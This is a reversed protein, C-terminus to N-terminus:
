ESAFPESGAIVPLLVHFTTGKDPETDFWIKGKAQEVIGKCMALGLGTGSSKTTFNPIFIREQMEPAIGEGNDKISFRIMQDTLLESVEIKCIGTDQCAQVANAFLNTFLRNMQTKDANVMVPNKVPHWDLQVQEDATFLKILSGLVDHLDFVAVHTTGINAFQSFDAAIRSLHDIQEVLTNAVSGSLEKVNPQNNNIAKQLYQISLKMPTLPNKIEHAVQRAMERWAGERESKALASASEGLKDVMKNYELVLEGIEDTRNWVIQENKKGLNVERMKDSILSFSRTIRNTIFLAILGAILFIFANLNIITVLFNSIEQRLEPKSTFYPINIYAYVKGQDDRVPSYISLYSFNGIKEEQAHQVQRLRDLHYFAAPDIKKSLVGKTYVNAESSVQLNGELDYVNVDVGHIDSVEDVLKQLGTNSVSDYIKVVDDFTNHDSMKKEMENVMIKMTRSLKESNSQKNRSIFFSITSAGIVLFSFISIFIITSHVQSRINLQLLKRLGTWNYGTRLVFTILQVFAVLFLFSCFIYSFLTITEITAQKKRAIVVVKDNGAQYWLEDYDGNVRLQFEEKPIEGAALWIPFPYNGPPSILRLSDYIANSYIPSNEPDTEKFQRFLEPFLADRSYNKFNSVIFFSGLKRNGEGTVDRRTIYNFKDFSTEYYYLGETETPKSQVTLITNLSEYSLPDENYLPNDVSDYVYLRTDYKNLYGSYSDTIISDRFEKGKEEGTFRDFNDSLFDNDLYKIAISMLRESSPDTQVALKDAILKRREWEVKRNQSFMIATISVSFVFIWSLIGAINIRIRNFILGKRNVLWTYVLLWLLVPLYFLVEPNGSRTTLYVLGAFGIAFYILFSKGAFLPFILRFLLQSFYYYSLSLCALVFFGVVTYRTLSFFNTVDFSIKSDAVLSRIVTALVFTSIILLCLSFIGTIWRLRVSFSVTPDEVYRLKSWAFLVLWCFLVANILLDGLSRQIANSGYILPSFLEFQRLNLLSPFYYTTLRFLLLLGALVAIAKWANKKRSVTEALQQFFLFLFLLGAFRLLITRRDNYPVSVAIKKDLYFLTKGSVGRVPFDTIRDSIRVRKDASNSYFFQQPLYDTTIFFESRVPVMAISLVQSAKKSQITKKIITYWGNPEKSFYEGDARSLIEPPPVVLQDNWFRLTHSGFEDVSYLFIGYKKAALETFEPLTEARGLLRHILATDRCFNTFDATHSHIYQEAQKVEQAVSSRNSYLKNFLFSFTFLLAAMLLLGYKRKFINTLLLKV